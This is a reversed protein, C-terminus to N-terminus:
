AATVPRCKAACGAPPLMDRLIASASGSRRQTSCEESGCSARAADGDVLGHRDPAESGTGDRLQSEAVDHQGGFAVLGVQAAHVVNARRRGQDQAERM